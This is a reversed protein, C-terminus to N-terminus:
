NLEKLALIEDDRSAKEELSETELIRYIPCRKSWADSCIGQLYNEALLRVESVKATYVPCKGVMYECSM